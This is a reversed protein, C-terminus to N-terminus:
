KICIVKVLGEDTLYYESVEYGSFIYTQKNTEIAFIDSFDKEIFDLQNTNLLLEIVNICDDGNLNMLYSHFEIVEYKSQFTRVEM